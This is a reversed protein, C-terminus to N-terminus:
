KAQAARLEEALRARERAPVGLFGVRVDSDRLRRTARQNVTLLALANLVPIFFLVVMLIKEGTRYGVADALLLFLVPSAITCAMIVAVAGLMVPGVVPRLDPQSGALSVM